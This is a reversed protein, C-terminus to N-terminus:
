IRSSIGGEEELLKKKRKEGGRNYSGLTGDSRIVRHCPIAPDRNTRLISGVARAADGNGARLAVEKYTMVSGKPIMAVINFVRSRFSNM